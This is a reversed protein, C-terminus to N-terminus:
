GSSRTTRARVVVLYIAMLAVQQFALVLTTGLPPVDDVAYLLADPRRPM